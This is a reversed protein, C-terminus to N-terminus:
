MAEIRAALRGDIDLLTARAITRGGVKLAVLEDVRAQGDLIDGPRLAALASIPVDFRGVVAVVTVIPDHAVQDDSATKERAPTTPEVDLWDDFDDMVEEISFVGAESYEVRALPKNAFLGFEGRAVRYAQRLVLADGIRLSEALNRAISSWGAVLSTRVRIEPLDDVPCPALRDALADLWHVPAELVLLDLDDNGREARLCWDLRREVTCGRLSAGVPWPPPEGDASGELGSGITDFTWAALADHLEAPITSADPVALLPEIWRCWQREDVWLRVPDPGLAGSLVLGNGGPSRRYALALARDAFDIRRGAGVKRLLRAGREDLRPLRRIATSM